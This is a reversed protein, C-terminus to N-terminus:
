LKQLNNNSYEEYLKIFILNVDEISINPNNKYFNCIKENKTILINENKNECNVVKKDNVDSKNDVVTENNFVIHIILSSNNMSNTKRVTNSKIYINEECINKITKNTIM